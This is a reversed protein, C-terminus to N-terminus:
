GRMRDLAHLFGSAAHMQEEEQRKQTLELQLRRKTAAARRLDAKLATLEDRLRDVKLHVLREENVADINDLVLRNQRALKRAVRRQWRDLHRAHPGVAVPNDRRARQIEDFLMQAPVVVETWKCHINRTRAQRPPLKRQYLLGGCETPETPPESKLPSDSWLLEAAIRSKKQGPSATDADSEDRKLPHDAQRRHRVQGIAIQHARDPTSGKKDTSHRDWAFRRPATFRQDETAVSSARVSTRAIKRERAPAPSLDAALSGLGNPTPPLPRKRPTRKEASGPPTHNAMNGAGRSGHHDYAAAADDDGHAPSSRSTNWLTQLSDMRPHSAASSPTRSGSLHRPSASPHAAVTTSASPSWADTDDDLAGLRRQQNPRPSRAGSIGQPSSRPKGKHHVEKQALNSPLTSMLLTFIWFLILLWFLTRQTPVILSRTPVVTITPPDYHHSPQRDIFILQSNLALARLIAM